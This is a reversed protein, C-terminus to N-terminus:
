PTKLQQVRINPYAGECKSQLTPDRDLTATYAKAVRLIDAAFATLQVNLAKVGVVKANVAARLVGQYQPDEATLTYHGISTPFTDGFHIRWTYGTETKEDHLFRLSGTHMLTHRMLQIAVRHEDAKQADLYRQPASSRIV